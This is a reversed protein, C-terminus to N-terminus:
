EESVEGEGSERAMEELSSTDLPVAERCLATATVRAKTSPPPGRPEYIWKISHWAFYLTVAEEVKRCENGSLYPSIAAFSSDGTFEKISEVLREVTKKGLKYSFPDFSL